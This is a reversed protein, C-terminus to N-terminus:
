AGMEALQAVVKSALDGAIRSINGNGTAHANLSATLLLNQLNVLDVYSFATDTSTINM